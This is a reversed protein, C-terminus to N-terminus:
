VAAPLQVGRRAFLDARERHLIGIIDRVVRGYSPDDALNRLERPDSALDYLGDVILQDSKLVAM